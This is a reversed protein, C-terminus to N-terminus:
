LCTVLNRHNLKSATDISIDYSRLKLRDWYALCRWELVSGLGLCRDLQCLDRIWLEDAVKSAKADLDSLGIVAPLTASAFLVRLIM